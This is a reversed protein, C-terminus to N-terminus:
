YRSGINYNVSVGGIGAIDPNYRNNNFLWSIKLGVSRHYLQWRVGTSLALGSIHLQGPDAEEEDPDIHETPHASNHFGWGLGAFFGAKDRAKCTAANGYNWSLLVPANFMFISTSNGGTNSNYNDGINMGAAISTELSIASHQSFQLFNFRPTYIVAAGLYKRATFIGGGISHSFLTSQAIVAAPLLIATCLLITYKMRM